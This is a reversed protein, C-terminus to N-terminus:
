DPRLFCPWSAFLNIEAGYLTKKLMLAVEQGHCVGPDTYESVGFHDFLPQTVELPTPPERTFQYILWFVEPPGDVELIRVVDGAWSDM